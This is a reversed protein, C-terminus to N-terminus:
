RPEESNSQKYAKELDLIRTNGMYPRSEYSSIQGLKKIIAIMKEVDNLVHDVYKRQPDEPMMGMLLLDANLNIATLPQFLEHAVAGALEALKRMCKEDELPVKVDQLRHNAEWTEQALRGLPQGNVKEKKTM